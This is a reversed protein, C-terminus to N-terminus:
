VELNARRNQSLSIGTVLSPRLPQAEGLLHDEEDDTDDDTIDAVYVQSAQIARDDNDARNNNEILIETQCEYCWLRFTTSNLTLRHSPNLQFHQTSHDSVGEGCGTFLNCSDTVCVWLNPGCAGCVQCAARSIIDDASFNALQTVHPCNHNM